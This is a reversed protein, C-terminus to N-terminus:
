DDIANEEDVVGDVEDVLCRGVITGLTISKGPEFARMGTYPLTMYLMKEPTHAILMDRWSEEVDTQALAVVARHDRHSGLTDYLGLYTRWRCCNPTWSPRPARLFFSGGNLVSELCHSTDKYKKCPHLRVILDNDLRFSLSGMAPNWETTETTKPLLFMHRKLKISSRITDRFTTSTRQLLFLDFLPLNLLIMELLEVTDFVLGAVPSASDKDEQTQARHCTLQSTTSAM